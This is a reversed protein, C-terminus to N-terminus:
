NRLKQAIWQDTPVGELYALGSYGIAVLANKAHYIVIKNSAPDFRSDGRTVLRDSVQLIYRPTALTLILTM